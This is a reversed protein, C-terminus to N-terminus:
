NDLALCLAKFVKGDSITCGNQIMDFLELERQLDYPKESTYAKLTDPANLSAQQIFAPDTFDVNSNTDAKMGVLVIKDALCQFTKIEKAERYELFEVKRMISEFVVDSFLSIIKNTNGTDEQKIKIWDEATIGNLILYDVFEKELGELEELTLLRYKAM